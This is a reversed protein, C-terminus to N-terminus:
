NRTRNRDLAACINSRHAVLVLVVTAALGAIAAPSRGMLAAMAPGVAVAATMGLTYRRSLVGLLATLGAIALAVRHDFLLMAGFAPALGKGGKFGLQVPYIHGAVVAPVVLAASWPSAGLGRSVLVAAVGKLLDGVATVAFGPRGLVRGVNTGGTAGSGQRRVDQGTRLRVVYYGTSVCGLAYSAVIAVLGPALGGPLGLM